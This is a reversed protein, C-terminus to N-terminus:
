VAARRVESFFFFIQQINIYGAKTVHRILTPSSPLTQVTEFTPPDRNESEFPMKVEATLAAAEQQADSRRDRGPLLGGKVM